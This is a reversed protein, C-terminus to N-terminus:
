VEEAKSPFSRVQLFLQPACFGLKEWCGDACIIWEGAEQKNQDIESKWRLVKSVIKRREEESPSFSSLYILYSVKRAEWFICFVLMLAIICIGLSFFLVTWHGATYSLTAGEAALTVPTWWWVPWLMDASAAKHQQSWIILVCIHESEPLHLPMWTRMVKLPRTGMLPFATCRIGTPSRQLIHWRQPHEHFLSIELSKENREAVCHGTFLYVLNNIRETDKKAFPMPSRTAIHLITCVGSVCWCLNRTCTLMAKDLELCCPLQIQIEELARRRSM